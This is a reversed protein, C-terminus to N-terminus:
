ENYAKAGEPGRGYTSDTITNDDGNHLNISTNCIIKALGM